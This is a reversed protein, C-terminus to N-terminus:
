LNKISHMSKFMSLLRPYQEKNFEYYINEDDNKYIVSGYSLHFKVVNKNEVRVDSLAKKLKLIDFAFHYVLITSEVAVFMPADKAIIWRGWNFTESDVDIEYVGVVGYPKGEISEIIFYYDGERKQQNRIWEKQNEVSPSTSHLYKNLEPNLRLSLIFEADSELVTRLQIKKGIIINELIM